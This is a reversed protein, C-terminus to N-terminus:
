PSWGLISKLENTGQRDEPSIELVRPQGRDLVAPDTSSRLWAGFGRTVSAELDDFLRPGSIGISDGDVVLHADTRENGISFKFENRQGQTCVRLPWSAHLMGNRAARWLIGCAEVYRPNIPALFESSYERVCDPAENKGVYIRAIYELAMLCGAVLLFNGGGFSPDPQKALTEIGLHLTRLDGLVCNEIWHALEQHSKLRQAARRDPPIAIYTTNALLRAGARLNGEHDTTFRRAAM